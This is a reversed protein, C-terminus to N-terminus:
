YLIPLLEHAAVCRCIADSETIGPGSTVQLGKRTFANGVSSWFMQMTARIRAPLSLPYSWEFNLRAAGGARAETVVM